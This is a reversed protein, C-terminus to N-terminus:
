LAEIDSLIDWLLTRGHAPINPDETVEELHAIATNKKVNMDTEESDTLTKKVDEAATIVNRPTSSDELLHDIKVILRQFDDETM